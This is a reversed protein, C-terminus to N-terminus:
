KMHKIQVRRKMFYKVAGTIQGDLMVQDVNELLQNYHVPYMGMGLILDFDNKFLPKLGKRETEM